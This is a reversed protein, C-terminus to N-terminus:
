PTVERRQEKRIRHREVSGAILAAIVTTLLVLGKVFWVTLWFVGWFMLLIPGIILWGLPGMSVTGRSSIRM